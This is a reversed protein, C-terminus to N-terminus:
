LFYSVDVKEAPDTPIPLIVDRWIIQNDEVRAKYFMRFFLEFWNNNETSICFLLELDYAFESCKM